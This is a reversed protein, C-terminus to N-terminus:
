HMCLTDCHTSTHHLTTCADFHTTTHHLTTCHAGDMLARHVYPPSSGYFAQLPLDHKAFSGSIIASKQPFHGICILCGIPRRWGTLVFFAPALISRLATKAFGLKSNEATQRASVHTFFFAFMRGCPGVHLYTCIYIYLHKRTYM